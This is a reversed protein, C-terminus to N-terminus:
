LLIIYPEGFTVTCIAAKKILRGRRGLCTPVRKTDLNPTEPTLSRLIPTQAPYTM